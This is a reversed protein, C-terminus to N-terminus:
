RSGRNIQDQTAIDLAGANVFGYSVGDRHLQVLGVIQCSRSTNYSAEGITFVFDQATKRAEEDFFVIYKNPRIVVSDGETFISLSLEYARLEDLLTYIDEDWAGSEDNFTVNKETHKVLFDKVKFYCGLQEILTQIHKM